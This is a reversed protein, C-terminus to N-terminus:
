KFPTKFQSNPKIHLKENQYDFILNFRRLSNNGLIGDAGEQKSRVEAPPFAATVNKLIFPGIKLQSIRGTTGVIPGSLGTGLHKYSVNDPMGFKMDEKVLLEIAEGAALDIYTIIPIDEEGKISVSAQLFPIEKKLTFDITHWTTDASIQDPKYLYILLKDYDIEVTYSGFFTTGIVGDSPFNQTTNSQSIIVKQAFFDMGGSSLTVSDAQVAYSAEGSGAGGIRVDISNKIDLEQILEKHFLYVGEIRMGTDLIVELERSGEVKVPLIIKNRDLKFHIKALPTLANKINQPNTNSLVNKVVFV